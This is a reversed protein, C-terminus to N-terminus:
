RGGGKYNSKLVMLVKKYLSPDLDELRHNIHWWVTCQPCNLERSVTYTSAGPDLMLHSERLVEEDSYYHRKNM